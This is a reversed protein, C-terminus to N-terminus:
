QDAHTVFIQHHIYKSSHVIIICYTSWTNPIRDRKIWNSIWNISAFIYRVISRWYKTGIFILVQNKTNFSSWNMTWNQSSYTQVGHNWDFSIHHLRNYKQKQKIRHNLRNQLMVTIEKSIQVLFLQMKISFDGRQHNVNWRIYFASGAQYLLKM